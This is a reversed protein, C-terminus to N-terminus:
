LRTVSWLLLFFDTGPLPDKDIRVEKKIWAEVRVTGKKFVQGDWLERWSEPSHCFMSHKGYTSLEIRYGKEPRGGHTGLIISGPAPALLTAMRRALELQKEESFLHFFASAHIASVHGQLPLLSTLSKLVPRPTDPKVYLPDRLTLM